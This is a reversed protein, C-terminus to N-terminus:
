YSLVGGIIWKGSLVSCFTVIVTPSVNVAGVTLETESLTDVILLDATTWLPTTLLWTGPTYRIKYSTTSSAPFKAVSTTVTVTWDEAVGVGVAAASSPPPSYNTLFIYSYHDLNNRKQQLHFTTQNCISM